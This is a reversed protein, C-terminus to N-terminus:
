VPLRGLGPVLFQIMPNAFFGVLESVYRAGFLFIVFIVVLGYRELQDFLNRIFPLAAYAIRSGDLPPLPILNFVGLLVNILIVRIFLETVSAPLVSFGLNITLAFAAALLFNMMPGAAAVLAAGWKGYRVAWPNFPVPRAAALAPLGSLILLLPLLVTMVPDIHVLPNISLRGQDRATRDGLYNSMWAHAFEHLTLALILAFIIYILDM